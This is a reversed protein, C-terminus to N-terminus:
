MLARVCECVCVCVRMCAQKSVEVHRSSLQVRQREVSSVVERGRVDRVGGHECEACLVRRMQVGREGREDDWEDM